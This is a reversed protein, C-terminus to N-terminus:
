PPRPKRVRPADKRREHGVSDAPFGVTTLVFEECSAPNGAPTGTRTAVGAVNRGNPLTREVLAYTGVRAGSAELVRGAAALTAGTTRIDDVLLIRRGVLGHRDVNPALRWANAVNDHRRQRDLGQQTPGPRRRLLGRCPVDLDRAWARALAEPLHGGRRARRSREGPIWTVLDVDLGSVRPAAIAALRSGGGRWHGFKAARVLRRAAGTDPWAAHATTPLVDLLQVCALCPTRVGRRGCGACRMGCALEIISLLTRHVARAFASATLHM